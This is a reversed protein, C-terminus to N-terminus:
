RLRVIRFRGEASVVFGSRVALPAPRRPKLLIVYDAEAIAPSAGDGPLPGYLKSCFLNPDKLDKGTCNVVNGGSLVAFLFAHGAFTDAYRWGDMGDPELVVIHQQRLHRARFFDAARAAEAVQPTESCLREFTVYAVRGNWLAVLTGMAVGAAVAMRASMVRRLIWRGGIYALLTLWPTYIQYYREVPQLLLTRRFTLYTADGVPVIWTYVLMVLEYGIWYLLPLKLAPREPLARTAGLIALLIGVPTLNAAFVALKEFKWSLSRVVLDVIELAGYRLAAGPPAVAGTNVLFGFPVSAHRVHVLVVALVTVAAMGAATLVIRRPLRGARARMALLVLVLTVLLAGEWRMLFGLLAAGVAALALRPRGEDALLLFYVTAAFFFGYAQTPNFYVSQLFFAANVAALAAVLLAEVPSVLRRAILFLFVLTASSLIATALNAFAFLRGFGPDAPLLVRAAQAVIWPLVPLQRALDVREGHLLQDVLSFPALVDGEVINHNGAAAGLRAILDVVLLLALGAWAAVATWERRPAASEPAETM